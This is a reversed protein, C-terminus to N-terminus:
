MAEGEEAIQEFFDQGTANVTEMSPLFPEAGIIVFDLPSERQVAVVKEEVAGEDEGSDENPGFEPIELKIGELRAFDIEKEVTHEEGMFRAGQAMIRAWGRFPPLDVSELTERIVRVRENAAIREDVPAMPVFSNLNECLTLRTCTRSM